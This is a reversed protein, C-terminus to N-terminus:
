GSIAIIFIGAILVFFGLTLTLSFLKEKRSPTYGNEKNEYDIGSKSSFVVVPKKYSAAYDKFFLGLVLRFYLIYLLPIGSFFLFKWNENELQQLIINLVLLQMGLFAYQKFLNDNIIEQSNIYFLVWLM